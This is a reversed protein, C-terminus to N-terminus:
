RGGFWSRLRGGQEQPEEEEPTPALRDLEARAAQHEPELQLVKRYMSRARSTLKQGAYIQGLFLYAPTCGPDDRTLGLLVEEARKQWHPNKMFARALLLAGRVRLPGETQPLLPEV